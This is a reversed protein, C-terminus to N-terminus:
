TNTFEKNTYASVSWLSYCLVALTKNDVVDSARCYNQLYFKGINGRVVMKDRRGLLSKRFSITEDDNHSSKLNLPLSISRGKPCGM